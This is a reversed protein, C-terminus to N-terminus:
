FRRSINKILLRSFTSIDFASFHLFEDKEFFFTLIFIDNLNRFTILVRIYGIKLHLCPLMLSAKDTQKSIVSSPLDPLDLYPM